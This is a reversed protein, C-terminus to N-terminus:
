KTGPSDRHPGIRHAPSRPNKYEILVRSYVSDIRGSAVTFEYRTELQIQAEKQIFALQKESAIRVEEENAAVAAAAKIADAFEVAKKSILEGLSASVVM